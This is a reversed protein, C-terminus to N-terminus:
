GLGLWLCCSFSLNDTFSLMKVASLVWDNRNCEIAADWSEPSPGLGNWNERSLGRWAEGRFSFTTRLMMCFCYEQISDCYWNRANFTILRIPGPSWALVIFLNVGTYSSALFKGFFFVATYLSHCAVTSLITKFVLGFCNVWLASVRVMFVLRNKGASKFLYGILTHRRFLPVSM